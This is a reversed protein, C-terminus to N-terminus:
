AVICMQRTEDANRRSGTSQPEESFGESEEEHNMQGSHYARVADEPAQSAPIPVAAGSLTLMPHESVETEVRELDYLEVINSSSAVSPFTAMADTDIKHLLEEIYLRMPEDIEDHTTISKMMDVFQDRLNDYHKDAFVDILTAVLGQSQDRTYIQLWESLWGPFDPSLFAEYLEPSNPLHSIFDFAEASLPDQTNTSLKILQSVFHDRRFVAVADSHHAFVELCM